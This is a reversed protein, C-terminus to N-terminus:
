NAASKGSTQSGQKASSKTPPPLPVKRVEEFYQQVYSQLALPVEDREIKGGAESHTASRQTYATKLQQNGSSVEVMMEGTLNQSRKGLIESIKGMAELQEALKVDKNGDQKGASSRADEPAPRNSAQQGQQGEGAEAREAGEGQSQGKSEQSGQGPEGQKGEGPYQGQPDQQREQGQGQQLSGKSASAMQKGSNGSRSKANMKSLLNALANKMREMLGSEDNPAPPSQSSARQQESSREGSQAPSTGAQPQGDSAEGGENQGEGPDEQNPDGQQDALQEKRDLSATEQGPTGREGDESRSLARENTQEGNNLRDNLSLGMQQLKEDLIQEERRREKKAKAIPDTPRFTDLNIQAIPPRLDLSHRVGYRLGLMGFAVLVLSLALYSTRPLALPVVSALSVTSALREAERRQAERLEAPARHQNAPNSFYYATSLTDHSGLREDLEQAVAYPTPLRKRVSILLFGLVVVFLLLPWYWNLIQTGLILLLILAGFGLSAAV